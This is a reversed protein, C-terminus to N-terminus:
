SAVVTCRPAYRGSERSWFNLIDTWNGSYNSQPVRLDTIQIIYLDV